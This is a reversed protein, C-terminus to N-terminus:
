RINDLHIEATKKYIIDFIEEKSICEELSYTLVEMFHSIGSIKSLINIIEKSIIEKEEEREILKNYEL